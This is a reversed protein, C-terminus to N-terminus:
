KTMATFDGCSVTMKSPSRRFKYKDRYTWTSWDKLSQAFAARVADEPTIGSYYLYEGTNLNLVKVM